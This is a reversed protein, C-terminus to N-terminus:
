ILTTLFVAYGMKREKEAITQCRPQAYAKRRSRWLNHTAMPPLTMKQWAPGACAPLTDDALSFDKSISSWSQSYLWAWQSFALIGVVIGHMSIISPAVGM